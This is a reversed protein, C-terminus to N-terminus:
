TVTRRSTYTRDVTGDGDVDTEITTVVTTRSEYTMTVLSRFTLDGTTGTATSDVTSLRGKSDYGHTTTFTSDVTGDGDTDVESVTTSRRGQSDYTTSQRSVLDVTGDGDSDFEDVSSVLRGQSDYTSHSTSTSSVPASTTGGDYTIITLDVLRGAPSYTASQTQLLDTSGDGDLDLAFEIEVQNGQKDYGSTSRFKSDLVGGSYESHVQTALRGQQDYTVEDVEHTLVNGAGDLSDEEYRTIRGRADYTTRSVTSGDATGDDDTDDASTSTLQRGRQDRGFTTTNSSDVVGDGDVDVTTVKSLVYDQKDYTTTVVTTGPATPGDGDVDYVRTERTLRGRQDYEWTRETREVEAGATDTSVDVQAIERGRTDYSITSTDTTTGSATEDTITYTVTAGSLQGPTLYTARSPDAAATAPAAPLLVAGAVLATCALLSRGRQVDSRRRPTPRTPVIPSLTM